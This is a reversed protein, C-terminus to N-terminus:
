VCRSVEPCQGWLDANPRCPSMPMYKFVLEYVWPETTWVIKSNRKDKILDGDKRIRGEEWKGKGLNIIRKCTVEDIENSFQWTM